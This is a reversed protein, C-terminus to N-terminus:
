HESLVTLVSSFPKSFDEALGTVFGSIQGEM